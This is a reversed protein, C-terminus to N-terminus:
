NQEPMGAGRVSSGRTVKQIEGDLTAQRANLFGEFDDRRMADEAEPNILHSRLVDSLSLPSGVFDKEIL